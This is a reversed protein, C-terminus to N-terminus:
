PHCQVQNYGVILVATESFIKFYLRDQYSLFICSLVVLPKLFSPTSPYPFTSWGM